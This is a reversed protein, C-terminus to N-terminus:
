GFFSTPGSLEGLWAYKIAVFATFMLLGDHSDTDEPTRDTYMKYYEQFERKEVWVGIEASVRIASWGVETHTETIM